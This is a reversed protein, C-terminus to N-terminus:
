KIKARIHDLIDAVAPCVTANKLTLHYISPQDDQDTHPYERCAKPRFEYISCRNDLGLFACPVQKLVMDNDEDKRLYKEAFEKESLKLKSSIRKIDSATFLPGTTKCCNACKLCDTCAFVKEHAKQFLSDVKKSDLKILNQLLTKNKKQNGSSQQNFKHLDKKL